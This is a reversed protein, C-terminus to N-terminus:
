KMCRLAITLKQITENKRLMVNTSLYNVILTKPSKNEISPWPAGCKGKTSVKHAASWLVAKPSAPRMMEDGELPAAATYPQNHYFFTKNSLKKKM